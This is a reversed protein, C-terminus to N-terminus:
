KDYGHGNWTDMYGYLWIVMHGNLSFYCIKTCYHHRVFLRSIIFNVDFFMGFSLSLKGFMIFNYVYM